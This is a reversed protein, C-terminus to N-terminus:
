GVTRSTFLFEILDEGSIEALSNHRREGNIFVMLRVQEPTVDENAIRVYIREFRAIDFEKEFDGTLQTTDAILLVLERAGSDEDFSTLFNTSVILQLLAPSDADVVVRAVTPSEDNVCASLLSLGVALIIAAAEMTKTKM